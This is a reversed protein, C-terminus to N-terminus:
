SPSFLSDALSPNVTIGYFRLTTGDPATYTWYGYGPWNVLDNEYGAFQSNWTSLEGSFDSSLDTWTGNEYIWAKQQAGNIIYTYNSQSGTAEIRVM